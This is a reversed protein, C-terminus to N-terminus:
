FVEADDSPPEGGNESFGGSSVYSDYSGDTNARDGSSEYDYSSYSSDEPGPPSSEYSEYDYSSDAARTTVSSENPEYSEYGGKEPTRLRVMHTTFDRARTRRTVVEQVEIVPPTQLQLFELAADIDSARVNGQFCDRVLDTRSVPERKERLFRFVRAARGRVEADAVGGERLRARDRWVYEISARSYRTWAIGSALHNETIAPSRDMVALTLAIRLGMAPARETLSEVIESSHGRSWERRYIDEYLERAADDLRIKPKKERVWGISQNLLGAWQAIIKPDTPEPLPIIQTREAWIIIFRNLFGNRVAVEKIMALLEAPTIHAVMCVHPSSARTRETKTLPALDIGDFCDRLASSLTNGERGAQALINAFESEVIFLRKDTVGPDDEIWEKAEKDWKFTPDRIAFALGERSSLGGFHYGPTFPAFDGGNASAFRRAVEDTRMMESVLRRIPSVATGKRGRNSRGIHLVGLRPHHQDDGLWLGTDRGFCCGAYTLFGAAIAVPSAESRTGLEVSWDGIPGYFMDDSSAPVAIYRRREAEAVPDPQPTGNVKSM